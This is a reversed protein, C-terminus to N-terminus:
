LPRPAALCGLHALWAAPFAAAEGALRTESM